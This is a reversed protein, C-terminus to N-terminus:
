NASVSPAAPATAEGRAVADWAQKVVYARIADTEEKSLRDGVGVMGRASLAGDRVVTDWAADSSTLASWRLDPLVGSSIAFAGHCWQCNGAFLKLGETHLAEDGIPDSKPTRAIGNELPKPLVGDGGIKFTIVRGTEAAVAEEFVVGYVMAITSGWGSLITVYQEGDVEYTMPAAGPGGVLGHAWVREGTEADYAVLEGAKNAQFILGSAMSLTGGNFPVPFPVAWRAEGKVPDWALLSGGGMERLGEIGGAPIELPWGADERYGINWNSKIPDDPDPHSYVLPWVNTPIYVLGTDPNYSMPHWNHAGTPGPLVVFDEDLSRAEPVEIPRGNEDIGTAWTMDTFADASLLEGTAADLVYFFGNKPAQMIVRRPAGDVGLPLDALLMPQTATYDWMDRPTTQYHWKYAGTDADVALISSLFLNDGNGEPDRIAANWPSGNGVGLLVQDNVHDYVIADWVTGGGGDTTWAGTDGWTENALKAFIEDSIAGDPEKNPNPVTYFRWVLDGTNTDYATVYGRVGLEAGGNGIIVKDKIVRPAGTITYPKSQDVTVNSWIVAGTKADLAELRGDFVGVFVKGEYVALGRNVVDCCGKAADEGSVEPDYVWIEEGTRADLAYVVSWSGTVYMVGDVVIPTAEVGRPKKMDYVWGIGLEPLTDKNVKTLSSHRTEDYSGGYTLWQEPQEAASDLRAQSVEAMPRSAEAAAAPESGANETPAAVTAEKDGCGVLLALGVTGILLKTQNIM